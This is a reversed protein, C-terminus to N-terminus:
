LLSNMPERDSRLDKSIAPKTIIHANRSPLKKNKLTNFSLSSLLNLSHFFFKWWNKLTHVNCPNHTNRVDTAATVAIVDLFIISGSM